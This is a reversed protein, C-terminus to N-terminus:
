SFLIERCTGLYIYNATGAFEAMEDAEKGDHFEIMDMNGKIYDLAKILGYDWIENYPLEKVEDMAYDRAYLLESQDMSPESKDKLEFYVVIDVDGIFEKTPDLASGFVVMKTIRYIHDKSQNVEIARAKAYNIAKEAEERKYHGKTSLRAEKPKLYSIYPKGCAPCTTVRTNTIIADCFFCTHILVSNCFPCIKVGEEVEHKCLNCRKM